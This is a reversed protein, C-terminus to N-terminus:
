PATMVAKVEDLSLPRDYVRIDDLAGKFAQDATPVANGMGAAVTAGMQTGTTGTGGMVGDIYLKHTTGDFTYAIHHWGPDPATATVMDVPTWNWVELKMDKFGVHVGAKPTVSQNLMAFFVHRNADAPKANWRAWLAITKPANLAPLKNFSSLTTDDGGDFVLSGSGPHVGMTSWMPAKAGAELTANNGNGSDDKAVTGTADDLKWYGVLGMTPVVPATDPPRTDPIALDIALDPEAADMGGMGNGGDGDGGTGGMGSGGDGTGGGGDGGTAMGGSGGMTNGGEGGGVGGGGTGGKALNGGKGADPDENGGDGINDAVMTGVRTGQPGCGPWLTGLVLLSLASTAATRVLTRTIM